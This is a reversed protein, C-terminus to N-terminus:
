GHMWARKIEQVRDPSFRVTMRKRFGQYFSLRKLHLKQFNNLQGGFDPSSHIMAQYFGDLAKLARGDYEATKQGEYNGCLHYSYFIGSRVTRSTRISSAGRRHVVYNSSVFRMRDHLLAFDKHSKFSRLCCIIRTKLRKIKREPIRIEVPRPSKNRCLDDFAYEYGLYEFSLRSKNKKDTNQIAITTSKDTNFRMGNPLKEKLALEIQTPEKHSFVIIDDSYRFYRYVGDLAKIAKDYPEMALEALTASLGIGRPVGVTTNPTFTNFYCLIYDKIRKPIFVENALRDRVAETPLSEYFSKIDRRVVYMPTSDSLTELVDRVIRDRNRIQVRFRRSIYWAVSRLILVQSYEKISHCLRRKAQTVFLPSFKTHGANASLTAAKLVQDRKAKLDVKFRRSDGARLVRAFSQPTFVRHM